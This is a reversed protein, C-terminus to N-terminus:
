LYPYCIIHKYKRELLLDVIENQLVSAVGVIIMIDIDNWEDITYVPTRGIREQKKNRTVLFCKPYIGKNELKCYIEHAVDGAGYIAFSDTKLGEMQSEYLKKQVCVRRYCKQAIQELACKVVDMDTNKKAMKNQLKICDDYIEKGGKEYVSLNLFSSFFSDYNLFDGYEELLLTISQYLAETNTSISVATRYVSVLPRAVYGIKEKQSLRIVFEYDQLRPMNENFNGVVSFIDKRVVLTQTSIVNRESLVKRLGNEYKDKDEYDVPIIMEGVGRILRHACFSAALKRDLMDKIQVQLKDKDWEDDSDQFAIYEGRAAAIGKNRAANAGGNESMCILRVRDDGYENIMQVTSDTSADDVVIVELESYTQGLVSNIARIITSQRNYTPIIVSVLPQM